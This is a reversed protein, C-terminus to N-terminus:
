HLLVNLPCSVMAPQKFELLINQTDTETLHYHRQPCSHRHRTEPDDTTSSEPWLCEPYPLGLLVQTM